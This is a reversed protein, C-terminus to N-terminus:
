FLKNSKKAQDKKWKQQGVWAAKDMKFMKQFEADALYLEKISPDVGAPVGNQLDSLSCVKTKWDAYGIDSAGVREMQAHKATPSKSDQPKGAGGASGLKQLKKAYPDSFDNAVRDDWGLFHCTFTPPEAGAYIRYIPTDKSRGDPANAVFDLAAKFSNDREEKTSEEGIWIYVESFCDLMMVDDHCLDDQAYNFVEFMKFSGTSATTCEFLRPERMGEQLEKSTPYDTKGGLASWFEAPEKGEDVNVVKRGSALIKGLNGGFTKEDANSGKGAWL